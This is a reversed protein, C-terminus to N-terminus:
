FTHSTYTFTWASTISITNLPLFSSVLYFNDLQDESGPTGYYFQKIKNAINKSADSGREVELMFPILTEFDKPMTPKRPKIWIEFLMGERTTYGFVIPIKNYSGSKIIKLPEETIFAGPSPKEIVPAFPLKGAANQLADCMQFFNSYVSSETIINEHPQL